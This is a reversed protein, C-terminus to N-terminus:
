LPKLNSHGALLLLAPTNNIEALFMRMKSMALPDQISAFLEPHCFFNDAKKKELHVFKIIQNKKLTYNLKIEM